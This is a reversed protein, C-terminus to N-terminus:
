QKQFYVRDNEDPDGRFFYLAVEGSRRTVDLETSFPVGSGAGETIRTFDLVVRAQHKTDLMWNGTGSVARDKDPSQIYLVDGPIRNAEFTGDERLLLRASSAGDLSYAGVVDGRAIGRGCSSCAVILLFAAARASVSRGIVRM